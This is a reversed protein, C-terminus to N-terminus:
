TAMSLSGSQQLSRGKTEPAWALCVFFALLTVGAGIMLTAQLGISEISIPTLYTGAAAGIRSIGVAM